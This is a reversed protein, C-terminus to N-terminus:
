GFRLCILDPYHQECEISLSCMVEKECGKLVPTQM